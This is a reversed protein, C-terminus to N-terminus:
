AIGPSDGEPSQQQQQQQVTINIVNEMKKLYYSIKIKEQPEM